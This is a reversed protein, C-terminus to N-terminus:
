QLNILTVTATAFWLSVTFHQMVLSSGPVTADWCFESVRVKHLRGAIMRDIIIAPKGSREAQERLIQKEAACGYTLPCVYYEALNSM